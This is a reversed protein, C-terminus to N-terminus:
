KVELSKIQSLKSIVKILEDANGKKNINFIARKLVVNDVSYSFVMVKEGKYEKIRKTICTTLFEHSNKASSGVCITTEGTDKVGYGTFNKYICATIKHWIPYSKSM